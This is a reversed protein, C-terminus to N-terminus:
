HFQYHIEFSLVILISLQSHYLSISLPNWTIVRNFYHIWLSTISYIISKLHYCSLSLSFWTTFHFQYLIELSLLLSNGTIHHFQYYIENSIVIFLTFKWYYLSISLPNWTIIGNLSSSYANVHRQSTLSTVSKERPNNIRFQNIPRYSYVLSILSLWIQVRSRAFQVYNSGISLWSLWRTM